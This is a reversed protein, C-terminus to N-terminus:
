PLEVLIAAYGRNASAGLLLVPGAPAGSLALGLRLLGGTDGLGTAVADPPIVRASEGLVERASALATQGADDASGACYVARGASFGRLAIRVVAAAELGWAFHGARLNAYRRFASRPYPSDAKELLM